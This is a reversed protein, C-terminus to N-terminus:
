ERMQFRVTTHGAPGHRPYQLGQRLSKLAGLDEGNLVQNRKIHKCGLGHGKLRRLVKGTM